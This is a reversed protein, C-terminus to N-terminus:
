REAKRFVLAWDEEGPAKFKGEDGSAKTRKGTRPDFWEVKLGDVLKDMRLKVEGGVPLYVVALDGDDSWAAAVYKAPDDGGPQGTLLEQYPRLRWWPLSTFLEAVYKM